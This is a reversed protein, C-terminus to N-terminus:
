PTTLLTGDSTQGNANVIISASKSGTFFSVSASGSEDLQVAPNWYLTRRYDKKGEAPPTRRYDPHYFDDAISFGQLVYRRDRYTVRQGDDPIAELDLCVREVNKELARPDGGTRPNYDTYLKVRQLNTLQNFRNIKLAARNISINFGDYRPELIYANDTQMDGAYLRAISNLFHFRGRYCGSMLGADCARNYAAYADEAFAPKSSDVRRLGGHSARVTVTQMQTEFATANFISPQQGTEALPRFSMQYHDYPKVFNPYPWRVRLYFEPDEQENMSIWQHPDKAKWKTTDSAALFFICYGDFRPAQITFNGNKTTIDGIVPDSGDQVFEAHVQMERNLANEKANFRASAITGRMRYSGGPYNSERAYSQAIITEIVEGQGMGIYKDEISLDDDAVKRLSDRFSSLDTAQHEIQKELQYPLPCTADVARVEDQMFSASYNLVEGKLIQTQSEAPQSFEFAGPTAMEYWNFRRWGQTMMLLDLATRHEEDDSEFFYSANPVFGKIESSLLMETLINSTDYTYDQAGADRVALSLYSAPEGGARLSPATVQLNVQEFPAYKDKLGSVTLTPHLLEPQTVFFLRDAYIRGDADFVTVQHVGSPLGEGREGTLPLAESREYVLRWCEGGNRSPDPTPREQFLMTRGEHMVSIGLQKTAAEGVAAIDFRWSEGGQRSPNPTPREREVHLAVGDTEAKPLKAKATRGDKDIFTFEYEQGAEPTFTFVGRGRSVAPTEDMEEGKENKMKLKENNMRLNGEVAEGAETAAEFAVRCPVGAVVHGGEPFLSLQLQPAEAGSKYYRRLPRTTMDRYYEGPEQPKDYVPFVRSYLKDYDRYFEKALDKNFFWAEAESTHEKETIGWNLQWRTYARLEYYGAYLTDALVFNGHGRGQRMEVLQREVLFGDQNLLEVYLIRSVNSPLNRDTRRTYAAYWITDGLFYCTNDLQVFVKEQPIAKGFRTLRDAWGELTTPKQTTQAVGRVPLLMLLSFIFLLFPRIQKMRHTEVPCLYPNETLFLM